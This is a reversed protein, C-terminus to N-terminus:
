LKRTAPNSQPPRKSARSKPSLILRNSSVTARAPNVGYDLTIEKRQSLAPAPAEAFYTQHGLAAYIAAAILAGGSVGTLLTGTFWRLSVKRRDFSVQRAGGAEIAPDIGFEIVGFRSPRLRIGPNPPGLHASMTM